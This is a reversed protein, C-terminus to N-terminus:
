RKPLLAQALTRDQPANAAHGALQQQAIMKGALFEARYNAAHTIAIPRSYSVHRRAIRSFFGCRSSCPRAAKASACNRFSRNCLIATQDLITGLEAATVFDHDALGIQHLQSPQPLGSESPSNFRQERRAARSNPSTLNREPVTPSVALRNLQAVIAVLDHQKVGPACESQRSTVMQDCSRDCTAFSFSLGNASTPTLEQGWRGPCSLSTMALSRSFQRDNPPPSSM